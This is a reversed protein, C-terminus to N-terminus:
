DEALSLIDGNEADVYVERVRGTTDVLKFEYLWREGERELEVGVLEGDVHDRLRRLVEDMPLIEGRSVARRARDYSYDDDEWQREQGDGIAVASAAMLAVAFASRVVRRKRSYRM